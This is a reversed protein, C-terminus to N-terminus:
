IPNSSVRSVFILCLAVKELKGKIEGTSNRRDPAFFFSKRVYHTDVRYRLTECIWSACQHFQRHLRIYRQDAYFARPQM